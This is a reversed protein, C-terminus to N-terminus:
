LDFAENRYHREAWIAGSGLNVEAKIMGGKGQRLKAIDIEMVGKADAMNETWKEFEKANETPQEKLLYYEDRYPFLVVDADQEISGSDRLDSLYPRKNTRQEVGRSLQSLLMIPIDLEKALRKLAATIQGYELNKNATRNYESSGQMLQLYDIVIFALGYRRKARRAHAILRRLRECGKDIIIMNLDDLTSRARCLQRFGAEDLKGNIAKSYTLHYNETAFAAQTMLRASIQKGTMELSYFLTAGAFPDTEGKDARRFREAAVNYAIQGALLTKGMSPRGGVVYLEGPKLGGLRDDLPYIGTELGTIGHPDQYAAEIDTLADFSVQGVMRGGVEKTAAEAIADLAGSLDELQDEAPMDIPADFATSVAEEAVQIIERRMALDAITRGYDQSHLLTVASTALRALYKAGGMEKLAEDHEFYPKLTIPDATQGADTLKLIADYLRGHGPEFFHDVELFGRVADAAGANILMSGLLAQEAEINHPLQRHETDEELTM